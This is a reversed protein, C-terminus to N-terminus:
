VNWGGKLDTAMAHARVHGVSGCLCLFAGLSAGDPREWIHSTSEFDKRKGKRFPHDLLGADILEHLSRVRPIWVCPVNALICDKTHPDM